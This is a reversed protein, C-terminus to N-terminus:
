EIPLGLLIRNTEKVLRVIEKLAQIMEEHPDLKPPDHKVIQEAASLGEPQKTKKMIALLEAQTPM